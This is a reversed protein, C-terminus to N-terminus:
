YNFEAEILTKLVEDLENQKQLEELRSPRYNIHYYSTHNIELGENSADLIQQSSKHSIQALYHTTALAVSTKWESQHQLHATYSLPNPVMEHSNHSINSIHLFWKKTTSGASITKYSVGMRWNCEKGM